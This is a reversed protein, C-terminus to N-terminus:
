ADDDGVLGSEFAANMGDSYGARYETTARFRDIQAEQDALMKAADLLRHAGIGLVNLGAVLKQLDDCMVGVATKRDDM